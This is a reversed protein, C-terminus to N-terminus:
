EEEIELIDSLEDNATFLRARWTEQFDDIPGYKFTTEFPKDPACTTGKPVTIIVRGNKQDLPIGGEKAILILDPLTTKINPTIKLHYENTQHFWRNVKSIRYKLTCCQSIPFYKRAGASCGSSYYEEEGQKIISFITMYMQEMNPTPGRYGGNKEYTYRPYFIKISKEDDHNEPFCDQRIAILVTVSKKPWKWTAFLENGDKSIRLADVDDFLNLALCKGAIVVSGRITVPFLHIVNNADIKGRASNSSLNPIKKGLKNLDSIPILDGMKYDPKCTCNYIQVWANQTPAWSANIELGQRTVTLHSIPNPLENPTTIVSIGNSYVFKGDFGKFVAIILYGYDQGNIVDPDTASKLTVSNLLKGEGRKNPSTGDNRWVEINIANSPSEWEFNVTKNGPLVRLESINSAFLIPGVLAPSHSFCDERKTFVAYNYTEGPTLKTDIYTLGSTKGISHEQTIPSQNSELKRRSIEYSINGKAVSGKWSLIIGELGHEAKLNSPPAPICSLSAIKADKFDKCFSMATLFYNYAEESRGSALCTQGILYNKKANEISKLLLNELDSTSTIGLYSRKLENLLELGKFCRGAALEININEQFKQQEEKIRNIEKEQRKAYPAGPCILEIRKLKSLALNCDGRSVALDCDSILKSIESANSLSFGCKDCAENIQANLNGCKPCEIFLIKGCRSCARLEKENTHGCSHCKALNLKNAFNIIYLRAESVTVGKETAMHTLNDIVNSSLTGGICALKIQDDLEHLKTENLSNDYKEKGDLDKFLNLCHGILVQRATIESTKNNFKKIENYLSDTKAKLDKPQSEKPLGLFTYLDRINLENLNKTIETYIVKDVYRKIKGSPDDKKRINLKSLVIEEIKKESILNKFKKIIEELQSKTISGDNIFIAISKDLEQLAKRANESQIQKATRAEEDRLSVDELMVKRINKIQELNKQAFLGKTPHTKEQSWRAQMRDIANKIKSPNKESPDLELLLYYNERSM